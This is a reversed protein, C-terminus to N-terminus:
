YEEEGGYDNYGYGYEEEDQFDYYENGYTETPDEEGEIDFNEEFMTETHNDEFNDELENRCHIQGSSSNLNDEFDDELENRCHIQGSSSNEKCSSAGQKESSDPAPTDSFLKDLVDFNFKSSLRKKIQMERTTGTDAQAPMNIPAETKRQRKKSKKVVASAGVVNLGQKKAAQDQLYDKNIQEWIIKKYHAEKRNNLYSNVESDFVDGLDESDDDSPSSKDKHKFFMGFLSADATKMINILSDSHTYRLWIVRRRSSFCASTGGTLSKVCDPIKGVIRQRRAIYRLIKLELPSVVLM